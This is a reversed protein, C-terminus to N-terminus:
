KLLGVVAPHIEEKIYAPDYIDNEATGTWVM